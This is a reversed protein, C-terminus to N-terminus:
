LKIIKETKINGKQDKVEITYMSGSYNSLDIEIITDECLTRYVTNGTNNTISIVAKKDINKITVTSNTITPAISINDWKKIDVTKVYPPIAKRIAATADDIQKQTKANAKAKEGAIKAEFLPTYQTTLNYLGISDKMQNLRIEAEIIAINLELFDLNQEIPSIASKENLIATISDVTYQDSPSKFILEATDTIAILAAIEEAVYLGPNAAEDKLIAQATNLALELKSLEIKKVIVFEDRSKQLNATATDVDEQKSSTKFTKATAVAEKLADYVAQTYQGVNNGINNRARDLDTEAKEITMILASYDVSSNYANIAETVRDIEIQLSEITTIKANMATEVTNKLDDTNAFLPNKAIIQKATALINELETKDIKTFLAISENLENIANTLQEQTAITPLQEKAQNIEDAFALIEDEPKEAPNGDLLMEANAILSALPATDIKEPIFAETAERLANSALAIESLKTDATINAKFTKATNINSMFNLVEQGTKIDSYLELAKEAEAIASDLESTDQTGASNNIREILTNVAATHVDIVSQTSFIDENATEASKIAANLDNYDTYSLNNTKLLSKAETLAKELEIRNIDATAFLISAETLKQAESDINSQTTNSGVQSLFEEAQTIQSIFNDIEAETKESPSSKLVEKSFSIAKELEAVNPRYTPTTIDGILDKIIRVYEDIDAQPTNQSITNINVELSEMVIVFSQIEEDTKNEPNEILLNNFVTIVSDLEATDPFIIETNFTNIESELKEIAANIEDQTADNNNFVLLANDIVNQMQAIDDQEKNAINAQLAQEAKSITNELETKSITHEIVVIQKKFSNECGNKSVTYEIIYTGTGISPDFSQIEANDLIFIGGDPLASLAIAETTLLVTDDLEFTIEPIPVIVFELVSEASICEDTTKQHAYYKGAEQPTLTDSEQKEGKPTTWEIIAGQDAIATLTPSPTGACVEIKTVPEGNATLIPALIACDADNITISAPMPKSACGKTYNIATFTYTGTIDTSIYPTFIASTSLINKEASFWEVSDTENTITFSPIETSGEKITFLQNEFIPAETEIITIDQKTSDTCNNEDTVQLSLTYVGASLGEPNLINNEVGEGIITGLPLAELTILGGTACIETREAIIEAKPKAYITELLEVADSECGNNEQTVYYIYEGVRIIAPEIDSPLEIKLEEDAYIHLDPNQDLLAEINLEDGECFSYHSRVLEPKLPKESITLTSSAIEKSRCLNDDLQVAYITSATTFTYTDSITILESTDADAYWAINSGIISPLEENDCITFNHLEPVNITVDACPDNEEVTFTITYVVDDDTTNPNSSLVIETSNDPAKGTAPTITVEVRTDTQEVIYDTLAPFTASSLTATYEKLQANFTENLTIGAIELRTVEIVIPALEHMYIRGGPKTKATGPLEIEEEETTKWVKFTIDEGSGGEITEMMGGHLVGAAFLTDNISIFTCIMRCEEGAFAGLYDGAKIGEFQPNLYGVFTTSNTYNVRKWTPAGAHLKVIMTIAFVTVILRLITKNM